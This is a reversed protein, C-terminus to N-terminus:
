LGGTTPELGVRGVLFKVEDRLWTASHGGAGCCADGATSWGNTDAPDVAPSSTM